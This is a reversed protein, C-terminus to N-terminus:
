KFRFVLALPLGAFRGCLLTIKATQRVSADFRFLRMLSHVCQNLAIAFARAARASARVRHPRPNGM